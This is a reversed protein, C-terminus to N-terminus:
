KDKEHSHTNHPRHPPFAITAFLSFSVSASIFISLHLLVSFILAKKMEPALGSAEERNRLEANM